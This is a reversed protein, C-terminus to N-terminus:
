YGPDASTTDDVDRDVEVDEKRVEGGVTRTETEATKAVRVGGVVRAEKAVVPEERMIPVEIEGEQFADGPTGTSAAESAPIREIEVDERRLEVPVQQQETRVVKRLRVRGAEVQRKGVQLEEEQLPVEGETETTDATTGVTTDTMGTYDSTGTYGASPSDATGASVTSDTSSSTGPQFETGADGIPLGTPSPATTRATGYYSYIEEEQEPSIEDDSGFSPANKVQDEGYPLTITGDGIQADRMPIAHIKGMLWGTKVGIFELEDTADDAWVGDVTGIKNGASDLVDYGFLQAPDTQTQM